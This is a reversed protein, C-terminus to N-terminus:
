NPATSLPAAASGARSRRQWFSLAAPLGIVATALCMLEGAIALVGFSFLARNQAMILSGYGIITAASCLVVAGGTRSLAVALSSQPEAQYRRLMNIAYDASVGFTIPLAVFNSFNLREGTWAVLGLTLLVGVFLSAMSAMSMRLRARHVGLRGKVGSGRFALWCIVLVAGLSLAAARPGDAMMAKAIDSSIL